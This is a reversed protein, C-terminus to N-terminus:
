YSGLTRSDPGQAGATAPALDSEAAELARALDDADRVYAGQAGLVERNGPADYVICRAGLRLARELHVVPAVSRGELYTLCGAYLEDLLADDFVAGLFTVRPDDGALAYVRASYADAYPASGVVVLRRVAASRVFGDVLLDVHNVTEFRAVVLHFGGPSLGLRALRGSSRSRRGRV